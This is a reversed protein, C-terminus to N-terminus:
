ASGSFANLERYFKDQISTHRNFMSAIDEPEIGSQLLEWQIISFFEAFNLLGYFHEKFLEREERHRPIGLEQLDLKKYLADLSLAPPLSDGSKCYKPGAQRRLDRKEDNTLKTLMPGNLFLNVVLHRTSTLGIGSVMPVWDNLDINVGPADMHNGHGAQLGLEALALERYAILMWLATEVEDMEHEGQSLCFELVVSTPHDQAKGLHGAVYGVFTLWSISSGPLLDVYEPPLLTIFDIKSKMHREFEEVLFESLKEDEAARIARERWRKNNALEDFPTVM